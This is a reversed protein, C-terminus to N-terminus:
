ALLIQNLEQHYKYGLELYLNFIGKNSLTEIKHKHKNEFVELLFLEVDKRSKQELFFCEEIGSYTKAIFDLNAKFEVLEIYQKMKVNMNEDRNQALWFLHFYLRM